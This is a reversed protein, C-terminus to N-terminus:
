VDATPFAAPPAEGLQGLFAALYPRDEEAVSEFRVGFRCLGDDEVRSYAVFGECRVLHEGEASPVGIMLYVNTLPDVAEKSRCQIGGSSLNLGEAWLYEERNPYYGIMQDIRFRSAMRREEGNM